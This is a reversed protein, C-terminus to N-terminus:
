AQGDGYLKVAEDIVIMLARDPPLPFGNEEGEKRAVSIASEARQRLEEAFFHSRVIGDLCKLQDDNIHFRQEVCLYQYIKRTLLNEINM